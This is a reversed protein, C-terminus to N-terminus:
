KKKLLNSFPKDKNLTKLSTLFNLLKISICNLIYHLYIYHLEGMQFICKLSKKHEYGSFRATIVVVLKIDEDGRFHLWVNRLWGAGVRGDRGAKRM